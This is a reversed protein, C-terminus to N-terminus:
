IHFAQQSKIWLRDNVQSSELITLIKICLVIIRGITKYPYLVQDTINISSHLILPNLLLTSLLINPGLLSSTVKVLYLWTILYKVLWVDGWNKLRDLLTWIPLFTAHVAAFLVESTIRTLFGSPFLDKPLKLICLHSHLPNWVFYPWHHATTYITIFSQTGYFM